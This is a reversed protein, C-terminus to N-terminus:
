SHNVSHNISKLHLKLSVLFQAEEKNVHLERKVDAEEKSIKANSLIQTLERRIAKFDETEKQVEVKPITNANIEPSNPNTQSFLKANQLLFKRQVALKEYKAQLQQIFFPTVPHPTVLMPHEHVIIAHCIDCLQYACVVCFMVRKGSSESACNSCKFEMQPQEPVPKAKKFRANIKTATSETIKSLRTHRKDDNSEIVERPERERRKRGQNTVRVKSSRPSKKLSEAQNTEDENPLHSDQEIINTSEKIQKDHDTSDNISTKFQSLLFNPDSNALTQDTIVLPEGESKHLHSQCKSPADEQISKTFEYDLESQEANAQYTFSDLIKVFDHKPIESIDIFDDSNHNPQSPRVEIELFKKDALQHLFYDLDVQDKITTEEHDIDNYALVISDASRKFLNSLFGAFVSYTKFEQKFVVKKTSGDYKIKLLM